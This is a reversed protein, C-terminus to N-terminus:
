IQSAILERVQGRLERAQVHARGAVEKAPSPLQEELPQFTSEVCSIATEVIEDLQRVGSHLATRAETLLDELNRDGAVRDGLENRQVQARQLGLVGLGVAVYVADRALTAAETALDNIDPM